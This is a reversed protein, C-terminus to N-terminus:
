STKLIKQTLMSSFKTGLVGYVEPHSQLVQHKRETESLLVQAQRESLQELVSQQSLMMQLNYMTALFACKEFDDWKLEVIEPDTAIYNDLLESGADSRNFLEQLGNFNSALIDFGQQWDNHAIYVSLLPYDLVTEVLVSTSMSELVNEPIQCAELMDNFSYLAKWEETGPRIPYDYADDSKGSDSNQAYVLLSSGAVLSTLVAITFLIRVFPKRFM